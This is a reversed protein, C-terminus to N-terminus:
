LEELELLALFGAPSLIEIGEYSGLDLLHDDGSVIYNAEGALACELYRNDELDRQIVEVRMQPEVLIAQTGILNLFEEVREEPLHYKEQIRPYHLVRELEELIPPSVFLDFDEGEWRRLIEAPNGEGSIMASILVNADLVVRM